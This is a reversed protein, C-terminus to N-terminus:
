RARPGRGRRGGFAPMVEDDTLKGDKNADLSRLSAPAAKIEDASLSGDHDLDLAAVLPDMMPFGGERGRGRRGESEPPRRDEVPAPQSAASKKLEDPTLRGDKNADSRDFLGQFREPMEARTLAGDGNKDFSMLVGALEDPSTPATEGPEDGGRRGRGGREGGDGRGFSPRLEEGAVRGDANLDLPILAAPAGDIEATSIVRDGDRDLAAFVPSMPPGFGRGQPGREQMYAAAAAAIGLTLAAAVATSAAAWRSWRRPPNEDMIRM